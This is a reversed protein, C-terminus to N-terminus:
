MHDLVPGGRIEPMKVFAKRFDADKFAKLDETYADDSVNEMNNLIKMCVDYSYPDNEQDQNYNEKQKLQTLKTQLYQQSLSFEVSREAASSSWQTMAASLQDSKNIKPEKRRRRTNNGRRQTIPGGTTSIGHFIEGLLEYHRFGEKKFTKYETKNITYFHNWVEEAANVVNTNPDWTVGTHEILSTFLRHVM